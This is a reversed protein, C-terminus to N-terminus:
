YGELEKADKPVDFYGPKVDPFSVDSLTVETVLEGHTDGKWKFTRYTESFVIGEVKQQGDYAMFKEPSHGGEPFFGPYSVVYRLGAVRRTKPDFYVVYYDDPADGTGEEFTVKILDYTTGEFEQKGADSLIVGPDAFVFPVAVFYYPTLAWFRAKMTDEADAPKIWAKEGTWGFEVKKDPLVQHRARSSWTDVIQYTNRRKGDKPRYDFRFALPGNSYWKELGGHFEISELVIKGEPSASLREKADAVRAAIMKKSPVISDGQPQSQAGAAPQTGTESPAEPAEATETGASKPTPEDPEADPTAKEKNPCGVMFTLCVLTVLIRFMMAGLLPVERM